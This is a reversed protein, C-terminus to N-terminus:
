AAKNASTWKEAVFAQIHQIFQEESFAEAHRHIAIPNFTRQQFQEIAKALSSASQETFFLGTKGEIVVDLAGGKGYAIVPTGAAMAEIQVIGFDEEQPNLFAQAKSLAEAVAPANYPAFSITPGAM